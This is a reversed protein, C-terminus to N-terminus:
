KAIVSKKTARVTKKPATKTVVTTKKITVKSDKELKALRSTLNKFDDATPINLKDLVSTVMETFRKQYEDKKAETNEVFDTIVKKGEEESLSGKKVLEDINKQITETATAVAGVGTYLVKKLLDAM